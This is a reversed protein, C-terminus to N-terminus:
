ARECVLGTAGHLEMRTVRLGRKAGQATSRLGPLLEIRRVLRRARPHEHPEGATREAVLLARRELELRRRGRELPQASGRIGGSDPPHDLPVLGAVTVAQRLPLELDQPEDGGALAVTLDRGREDDALVGDRAMQLVDEALEADGGAGRRSRECELVVEDSRDRPM